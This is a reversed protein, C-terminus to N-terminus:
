YYRRYYGWRPGPGPGRWGQYPKCVGGQVTWGLPCCGLYTCHPDPNYYRYGYYPRPYYYQAKVPASTELALFCLSVAAATIKVILKM